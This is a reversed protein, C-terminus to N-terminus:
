IVTIQLMFFYAIITAAPDPILIPPDTGLCNKNTFLL